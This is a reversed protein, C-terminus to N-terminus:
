SALRRLGAVLRSFFGDGVVRSLLNQTLKDLRMRDMRGVTADVIQGDVFCLVTPVTRIGFPRGLEPHADTRVKCFRIPAGGFRQAVPEIERCLDGAARGPCPDFAIIVAGADSGLVAELETRDTLEVISPEASM